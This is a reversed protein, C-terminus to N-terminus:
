KAGGDDKLARAPLCNEDRRQMRRRKSITVNDGHGSRWRQLDRAGIAEGPPLKTIKLGTIDVSKPKSKQRPLPVRYPNEIRVARGDDDAVIPEPRIEKKYQKLVFRNANNVVVLRLRVLDAAIALGSPENVNIEKATAGTRGRKSIKRLANKQSKSLASNAGDGDGAESGQGM